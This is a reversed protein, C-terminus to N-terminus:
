FANARTVLNFLGKTGPTKDKIQHINCQGEKALNFMCIQLDSVIFYILYEIIGTDVALVYILLGHISCCM